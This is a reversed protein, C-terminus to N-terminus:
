TDTDRTHEILDFLTEPNPLRLLGLAYFIPNELTM